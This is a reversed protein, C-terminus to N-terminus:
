EYTISEFGFGTVSYIYFDLLIVGVPGNLCKKHVDIKLALSFIMIKRYVSAKLYGENEYCISCRRADSSIM